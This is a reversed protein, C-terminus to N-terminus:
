PFPIPSPNLLIFALCLVKSVTEVLKNGKRGKSLREKSEQAQRLTRNLSINFM